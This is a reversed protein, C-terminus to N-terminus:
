SWWPGRGRTSIKAVNGATLELSTNARLRRSGTCARSTSFVASGGRMTTSASGRVGLGEARIPSTLRFGTDACMTGALGVADYMAESRSM